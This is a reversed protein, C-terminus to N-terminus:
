WWNHTLKIKEKKVKKWCTSGYGQKISEPKTLKRNCRKCTVMKDGGLFRM